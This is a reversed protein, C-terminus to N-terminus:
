RWKQPHFRFPLKDYKTEVIPFNVSRSQIWHSIPHIKASEVRWTWSISAVFCVEIHFCSCCNQSNFAGEGDEAARWEWRRGMMGRERL